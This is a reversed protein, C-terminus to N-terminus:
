QDAGVKEVVTKPDKGNSDDRLISRQLTSSITGKEIIEVLAGITKQNEFCLM